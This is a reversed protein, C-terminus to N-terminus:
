PAVEIKLDPPSVSCDARLGWFGLSRKDYLPWVLQHDSPPISLNDIEKRNFFQFTGEDIPPPATVLKKKCEVLFMLWHADGSYNKEAVYGFLKIDDDKLSMGAEEKAERKACEVPSEGLSMELKGGPPSWLGLNPKKKRKILLLRNSEDEIFLLCSIKFKM